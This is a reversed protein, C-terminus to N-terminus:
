RAQLQPLHQSQRLARTDLNVAEIDRNPDVSSSKIVMSNRIVARHLEPKKRGRRGYIKLVKKLNEQHSYEFDPLTIM